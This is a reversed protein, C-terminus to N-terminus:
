REAPPEEDAEPRGRTRLWVAVALAVIGVLTALEVVLGGTGGHALVVLEASGATM